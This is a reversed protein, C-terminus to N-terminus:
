AERNEPHCECACEDNISFGCVEFAKMGHRTCQPCAMGQALYARIIELPVKGRYYTMGRLFDVQKSM